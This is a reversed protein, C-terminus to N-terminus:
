CMAFAWCRSVSVFLIKSEIGARGVVEGRLDFRSFSFEDDRLFLMSAETPLAIHLVGDWFAGPDKSLRSFTFAAKTRVVHAERAHINTKFRFPPLHHRNLKM